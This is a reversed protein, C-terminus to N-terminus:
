FIPTSEVAISEIACEDEGRVIRFYGNEGWGEGWSNRVIWYKTGSHSSDVGYGVLLVAHNTEEFPNYKDMLGTHKYVGGSYHFFDPYVEFAVAFPGNKVLSIKM